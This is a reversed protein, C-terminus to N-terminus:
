VNRGFTDIEPWESALADVKENAWLKKTFWSPASTSASYFFIVYKPV